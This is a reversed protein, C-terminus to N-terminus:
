HKGILAFIVVNIKKIIVSHVIMLYLFHILKCGHVNISSWNFILPGDASQDSHRM